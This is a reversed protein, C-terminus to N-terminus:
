LIGKPTNPDNLYEVAKSYTENVIPCFRAEKAIEYNYHYFLILMEIDEEFFTGKGYVNCKLADPLAEYRKQSLWLGGHSPTTLHIIGEAITTQTDPIGWPTSTILTM